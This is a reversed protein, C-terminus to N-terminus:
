KRFKSEAKAPEVFHDRRGSGVPSAEQREARYRADKGEGGDGTANM